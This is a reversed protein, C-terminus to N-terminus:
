KGYVFNQETVRLLHEYNRTGDSHSIDTYRVIGQLLLKGFKRVLKMDSFIPDDTLSKDPPDSPFRRRWERRLTAELDVKRYGGPSSLVALNGDSTDDGGHWSFDPIGDGNFDAERVLGYVWYTGETTGVDV